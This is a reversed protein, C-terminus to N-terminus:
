KLGDKFKMSAHTGDCFPKNSSQGCRCLVTRNRIEYTAGNECEVPIGGRVWLGGSVGLAPDEILALGPDYHPEFPKQTRNDWASLRGGPCMNAERITLERAQPNDSQGVLNWVRGKADCFRAFVCFKENDTLSVEPGDYQEAGDLLAADTPATLTPDWDAKAHSGDCYPKKHSEGCRCLATPETMEYRAGAFFEWSNGEANPTIIQQNMPPQGYVMYPGNHVVTIRFKAPARTSGEQIKMKEM